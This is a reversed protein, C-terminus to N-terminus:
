FRLRQSGHSSGHEAVLAFTYTNIIFSDLTHRLEHCLGSQSPCKSKCFSLSNSGALVSDGIHTDIRSGELSM